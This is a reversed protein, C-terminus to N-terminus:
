VSLFAFGTRLEWHTCFWGQRGRAGAGAKVGVWEGQRRWRSKALVYTRHWCDRVHNGSALRELYVRSSRLRRPGGDLGRGEEAEDRVEPGWVRAGAESLRGDGVRAGRESRTSKVGGLEEAQCIRAGSFPFM